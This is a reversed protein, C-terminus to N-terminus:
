LVVRACVIFDTYLHSIDFEYESLNGVLLYSFSQKAVNGGGLLLFKSISYPLAFYFFIIHIFNISEKSHLFSNFYFFVVGILIYTLSDTSNIVVLLDPVFYQILFHYLFYSLTFFSSHTLYDTSNIVDLFNPLV